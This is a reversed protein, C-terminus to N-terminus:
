VEEWASRFSEESMLISTGDEEKVVWMPTLEGKILVEVEYAVAEAERRRVRM